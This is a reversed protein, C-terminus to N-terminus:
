QAAPPTPVAYNVPISPESPVKEKWLDYKEIVTNAKAEDLWTQFIGIQASTYGEQTYPREQKDLLQIVHWGNDSQIPDSIQLKNLAFVADEFPKVMAGRGFWGLDRVEIAGATQAEAAVVDWSEGAKLRDAYGQAVTQDDVLIHRAWVQTGIIPLDKSMAKLVERRLITTRIVYRLDTETINYQTLADLFAQKNTQFADATYATPTPMATPEVTATAIATPELTPAATPMVTPSVTITPVPTPALTPTPTFFAMQEASLTPTPPFELTPESTPTGNPYFGFATKLEADIQEDTVMIGLETAKKTILIDEIMRDLVENGINQTNSLDAQMQVLQSYYGFPDSNFIQIIQDYQQIAQNFQQIRNFREYRVQGQFDKLSITQDGVKAVPRQDLFIFQNLLGVIILVVVLVVVVIAGILMRRQAIRERERHALHKRNVFEQKPPM